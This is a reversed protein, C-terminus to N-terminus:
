KNGAPTGVIVVPPDMPKAVTTAIPLSPFPCFCEGEETFAYIGADGCKKLCDDYGNYCSCSAFMLVALILKM